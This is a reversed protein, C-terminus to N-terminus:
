GTIKIVVYAVKMKGDRVEARMNEVASELEDDITRSVLDEIDDLSSEVVRVNTADVAYLNRRDRQDLDGKDM